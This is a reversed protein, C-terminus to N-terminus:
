EKTDRPLRTFVQGFLRYNNETWKWIKNKHETKPVNNWTKAKILNDYYFNENNQCSNNRLCHAIKYRLLHRRTIPNLSPCWAANFTTLVQHAPWRCNRTSITTWISRERERKKQSTAKKQPFKKSHVYSFVNWWVTPVVFTEMVNRTFTTWKRRKTIIAVYPYNKM